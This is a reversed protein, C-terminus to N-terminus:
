KKLMKRALIASRPRWRISSSYALLTLLLLGQHFIDARSRGIYNIFSILYETQAPPLIEGAKKILWIGGM